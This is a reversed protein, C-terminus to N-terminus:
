FSGGDSQQIKLTTEGVKWPFLSKSAKQVPSAKFKSRLWPRGQGGSGRAEVEGPSLGCDTFSDNLVHRVKQLCDQLEPRALPLHAPNVCPEEELKSSRHEVVGLENM